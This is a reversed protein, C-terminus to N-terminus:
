IGDNLGHNAEKAHLDLVQQQLTVQREFREVSLAYQGILRELDQRFPGNIDIRFQPSQINQSELKEHVVAKRFASVM